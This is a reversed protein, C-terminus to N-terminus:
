RLFAEYVYGAEKISEAGGKLRDVLSIIKVIKCDPYEEKVKEAAKIISNGKTVVDEVLLIRAKPLVEGEIWKNTGRNKLQKRVFFSTCYNDTYFSISNIVSSVIPIAGTEM